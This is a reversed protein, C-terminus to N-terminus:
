NTGLERLAETVVSTDVTKDIDVTGAVAGAERYIPMLERYVAPSHHMDVPWARITDALKLRIENIRADSQSKMASDTGYKRYAVAFWPPDVHARRFSVIVAKMLDVAARKNDPKALWTSSVMWTEGLFNEFEIWPEILIRYKGTAVLDQVQDFHLPVADVRGAILARLRTGSGGMSIVNVKNPDIGRKRLPHILMVHTFDGLSNVAVTVGKKELDKDTRVTDANAVFVLSTNMFCNGIIRLDAGAEVARLTSIADGTGVEGSGSLVAQTITELRSIRDIQPREYGFDPLIENLAGMYPVHIGLTNAVINVNLTRKTQACIPRGLTLGGLVAASKLVARRHLKM